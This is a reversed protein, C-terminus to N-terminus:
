NHISTPDFPLWVYFQSGKNLESEIWIKGRHRKIIEACIYLGIGMGPFTSQKDGQVRYFQKFINNQETLAIGIGFDQVCVRIGDEQLKTSVLIQVADPSYKVANSILNNFVQSLKEKDGYIAMNEDLQSEIQHTNTTKKMDDVVEIILDNINFSSENYRLTGQQIKTMDLLDTILLTLKNVQIGMKKIMGLTQLDGKSELIGEAIQGYAKITTVPTKLEHSAMSLFDDKQRELQKQLTIDEVVGLLKEPAHHENYFFKGYVKIWHESKDAYIFRAEYYLKGTEIAEQHAKKRVLEDDPHILSTLQDWPVEHDFGFLQYFRSDGEILNETMSAEYVGLEASEIAVRAKQEAHEIKQRTEVQDTIEDALAMIGSITGDEDRFAEYVFKVFVTQLKGNRQLIIPLENAVFREGTLYVNDLLEKFGQEKVEPLVDFIPKNIVEDMTRGWLELMRENVVEVVFDKGKFICLAIPAQIFLNELQKSLHREKLVKETTETVVCFVGGISGSEIYIPSYSFTFYCEEPYGKREIKLLQDESWTAEGTQLVGELMPGVINWIEPWVDKGKAGMARPHKKGIIERYSDNYIKILDPGWWILIPFKSNLCISVSTKLSQPWSEPNGLPIESWDM